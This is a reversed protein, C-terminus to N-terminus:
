SIDPAIRPIIQLFAYRKFEAAEHGEERGTRLNFFIAVAEKQQTAEVSSFISLPSTPAIYISSIDTSHLNYSFQLGM